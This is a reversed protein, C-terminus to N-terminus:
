SDLREANRSQSSFPAGQSLVRSFTTVAVAHQRLFDLVRRIAEFDVLDKSHGIATVLRHEDPRAQEDELVQGIAERMEGFTMRCFDLKRPYRFRLFDRWRHPLPKGHTAGPVKRQLKLRKGGLMEWFPVMQTHIPIEWLAGSSDPVNM